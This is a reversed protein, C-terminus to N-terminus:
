KLQGRRLVAQFAGVVNLWNWEKDRAWTELRCENHLELQAGNHCLKNGNLSGILFEWLPPFAPCSVWEWWVVLRHWQCKNDATTQAWLETNHFTIVMRWQRDRAQQLFKKLGSQSGGAIQRMEKSFGKTGFQCSLDHLTRPGSVHILWKTHHIKNLKWNINLPTPPFNDLTQQGWCFLQGTIGTTM